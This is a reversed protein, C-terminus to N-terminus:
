SSTTWLVNQFPIVLDFPHKHERSDLVGGQDDMIGQWFLRLRVHKERDDGQADFLLVAGAYFAGRMKTEVPARWEEM